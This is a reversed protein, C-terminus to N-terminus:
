LIADLLSARGCGGMEKGFGMREILWGSGVVGIMKELWRAQGGNGDWGVVWM